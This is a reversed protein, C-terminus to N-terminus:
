NAKLKKMFCEIINKWGINEHWKQYINKFICENERKSRRIWSSCFSTRLLILPYKRLINVDYYAVWIGELVIKKKLNLNLIYEMFPKIINEIADFKIDMDIYKSNNEELKKVFPYLIEYEEDSWKKLIEERIIFWNLIDDFEIIITDTSKFNRSFFSKGSGSNGIIFLFNSTKNKWLDFNECYPKRNFFFPQYRSFFLKKFSIYYYQETLAQFDYEM